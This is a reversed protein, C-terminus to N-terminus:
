IIQSVAFDYLSRISTSKKLIGFPSRSILYKLLKCKTRGIGRNSLERFRCNQKYSCHDFTNIIQASSCDFNSVVIRIHSLFLLLILPPNNDYFVIIRLIIRLSEDVIWRDLSQKHLFNIEFFVFIHHFLHSFLLSVKATHYSQIMNRKPLAFNVKKLFLHWLHVITM